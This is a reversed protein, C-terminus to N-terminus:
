VLVRKGACGPRSGTVHAAEAGAHGGAVPAAAAAAAAPPLFSQSYMLPRLKLAARKRDMHV